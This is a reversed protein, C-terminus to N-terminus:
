LVEERSKELKEEKNIKIIQKVIPMGLYYMILISMLYVMTTNLELNYIASNM